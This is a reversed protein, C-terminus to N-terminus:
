RLVRNLEKQIVEDKLYIKVAIRTSGFARDMLWDLYRLGEDTKAVEDISKDEYKGFRLKFDKAWKFNQM